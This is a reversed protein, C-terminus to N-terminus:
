KTFDPGLKKLIKSIISGKSYFKAEKPFESM